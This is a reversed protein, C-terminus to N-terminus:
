EIVVQLDVPAPNALKASEAGAREFGRITRSIIRFAIIDAIVREESDV